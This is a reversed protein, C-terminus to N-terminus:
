LFQGRNNGSPLVIQNVQVEDQEGRCVFAGRGATELMERVKNEARQWLKENEQFFKAKGPFHCPV